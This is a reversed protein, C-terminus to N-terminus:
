KNIRIPLYTESIDLSVGKVMASKRKMSQIYVHTYMYRCMFCLNM